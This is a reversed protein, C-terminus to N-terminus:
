QYTYLKFNKYLTNQTGSGVIKVRFYLWRQSNVYFVATNTAPRYVPQGNTSSYSYATATMGAAAIALTDSNVGDTGIMGTNINRWTKGDNSAQLYVRATGTGSIKTVDFTMMYNSYTNSQMAGVKTYFSYLTNADYLTDTTGTTITATTSVGSSTTDTNRYMLVPNAQGFTDTFSTATLATLMLVFLIKKM